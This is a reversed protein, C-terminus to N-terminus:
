HEVLEIKPTCPTLYSVPTGCCFSSFAPTSWFVKELLWCDKVIWWSTEVGDPAEMEPQWVEVQEEVREATDDVDDAEDLEM